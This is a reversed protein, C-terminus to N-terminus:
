SRRASQVISPGRFLTGITQSIRDEHVFIGSDRMLWNGEVQFQMRLTYYLGDTNEVVVRKEKNHPPLSGHEDNARKTAAAILDAVELGTARTAAMEALSGADSGIKGNRLMYLACTAQIASMTISVRAQDM